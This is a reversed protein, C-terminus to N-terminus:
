RFEAAPRSIEFRNGDPDYVDFLENDSGPRVATAEVGAAVLAARIPELDSEVVIVVHSNRDNDARDRVIGPELEWLIVPTGAIAFSAIPHVADAPSVYLPTLGLCNSYWAVSAALDGVRLVPAVMRAPGFVGPDTM